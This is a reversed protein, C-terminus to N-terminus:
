PYENDFFLDLPISKPVVLFQRRASIEDASAVETQSENGYLRPNLAEDIM